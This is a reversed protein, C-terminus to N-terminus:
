QVIITLYVKYNENRCTLYLNYACNLVRYLTYGYQVLRGQDHLNYDSRWSWSKYDSTFSEPIAWFWILCTMSHVTFIGMMVLYTSYVRNPGASFMDTFKRFWCIIRVLILVRNCQFWLRGPTSPFGPNHIRFENVAEEVVSELLYLPFMWILDFILWTSRYDKWQTSFGQSFRGNIGINTFFLAAFIYIASEVVLLDVVLWTWDTSAVQFSFQYTTMLAICSWSFLQFYDIILRLSSHPDTKFSYAFNQMTVTSHSRLTQWNAEIYQQDM